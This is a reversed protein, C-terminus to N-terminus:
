KSGPRLFESDDIQNRKSGSEYHLLDKQGYVANWNIMETILAM